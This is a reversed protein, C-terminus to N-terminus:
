GRRVEVDGTDASVNLNIVLGGSKSGPSTFEGINADMSDATRGLCDASGINSHCSVRVDAEEPVTVKVSGIGTHAEVFVEGEDPLKTLDVKIDGVSREYVAHGPVEPAVPAGPADPPEPRPPRGPDLANISTPEAKMDGIGHFNEPGGVATLGLGVVSLPVALAILGRGSRVFAGFVLGLGIIALAVGVIHGASFWGGPTRNSAIAMGAAAIIAIGLTATGVKPKRRKPPAPPQEPEPTTPEPLDWAFPAAGLPDWAPPTTRPEDAPPPVDAPHGVPPDVPMTYTPAPTQMPMTPMVPPTPPEPAKQAPPEPAVPMLNGRAQHLLFLLGGVVLLSMWSSFQGTFSGSFFWGLVPVTIIGLLITFGSSTSSRGKGFLAEIPAAEDDQEPLFLWGLLYMLVGAGGYVAAVAFGVRVLVPDIRYRNAIGAAVGAIKRGRRPRRPRTAWFDKVTDEIRAAGSPGQTASVIFLM